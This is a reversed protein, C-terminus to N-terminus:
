KKRWNQIQMKGTFNKFFKNKNCIEINQTKNEFLTSNKRPRAAIL